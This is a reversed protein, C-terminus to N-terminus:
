ALKELKAILSIRAEDGKSHEADLAKRAREKSEGVWALVDNASGGPVADDEQKPKPQEKPEDFVQTFGAGKISLLEAGLDWPVSVVDGDNEWWFSGVGSKGVEKRLKMEM